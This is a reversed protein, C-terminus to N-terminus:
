KIELLSIKAMCYAQNTVQSYSVHGVLSPFDEPIIEFWGYITTASNCPTSGNTCFGNISASLTNAQSLSGSFPYYITSTGIVTGGTACLGVGFSTSPANASVYFQILLIMSTLNLNDGGYNGWGEVNNAASTTIAATTIGTCYATNVALSQTLANSGSVKQVANIKYQSTVCLGNTTTCFNNFNPNKPEKDVAVLEVAGLINTSTQNNWSASANFITNNPLATANDMWAQNTEGNACAEARKILGTGPVIDLCEGTAENQNVDLSVWSGSQTTTIPLSASTASDFQAATVNGISAVNKYISVIISTDHSADGMVVKISPMTVGSFETVWISLALCIGGCSNEPKYLIRSYVDGATDTVTAASGNGYTAVLLTENLVVSFPTTIIQQIPANATFSKAQDFQIPGCLGNSSTCSNPQGGGAGSTGTGFSLGSVLLVLILGFMLPKWKNAAQQSV